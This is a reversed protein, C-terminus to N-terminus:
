FWAPILCSRQIQIHIGCILFRQKQIIAMTMKDRTEEETERKEGGM